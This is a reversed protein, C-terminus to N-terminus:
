DDFWGYKRKRPNSADLIKFSEIRFATYLGLALFGVTQLLIRSLDGSFLSYFFNAQGGVQILLNEEIAIDTLTSQLLTSRILLYIAIMIIWHPFNEKLYRASSEFQSLGYNGKIFIEESITNFIIFILAYIGLTIKYDMGGLAKSIVLEAIYLTFMASTLHSFFSMYSSSLYKFSVRGYYAFDYLLSYMASIIIVEIIYSIIGGIINFGGVGTNFTSLLFGSINLIINFIMPLFIIIPATKIKNKTNKLAKKYVKKLDEFTNM